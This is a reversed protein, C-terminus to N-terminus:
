VSTPAEFVECVGHDMVVVAIRDKAERLKKGSEPDFSDLLSQIGERYAIGRAFPVEGRDRYPQWDHGPMLTEALKGGNADDVNLVVVVMREVPTGISAHLEAVRRIFFTVRDLNARLTNLCAHKNIAEIVGMATPDDIVLQGDVVRITAVPSDDNM